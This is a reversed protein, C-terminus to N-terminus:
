PKLFNWGNNNKKKPVPTIKQKATAPGGKPPKVGMWDIGGSSSSQAKYKKDISNWQVKKAGKVDSNDWNGGRQMYPIDEQKIEGRQIREKANFVPLLHGTKGQEMDTQFSQLSRSQFSQPGVAGFKKKAKTAKEKAQIQKWQAASMGDPVYGMEQAVSDTRVLCGTSVSPAFSTVLPAM